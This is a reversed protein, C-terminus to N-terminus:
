TLRAASGPRRLVWVDQGIVAAPGDEHHAEVMLGASEAFGIMAPAPTYAAFTRSGPRAGTLVVHAGAAFRAAADPPLSATHRAGHTTVIARGNPKLLRAIDKIWAGAYAADLHTLISVGYIAAFRADPFPAPPAAASERIDAMPAYARAAAVCAPNPDCAHLTVHPGLAAALPRLIRGAGCGWELVAGVADSQDAGILAALADAHAGGSELWWDYRAYGQTEFVLPAPPFATDPHAAAIAANIPAAQRAM